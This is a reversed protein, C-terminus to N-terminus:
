NGKKEEMKEEAKEAIKAKCGDSLESGHDKLCNIIRGDGRKVDKCFKQIDPKCPGEMGGFAHVTGIMMMVAAVAGVGAVWKKM